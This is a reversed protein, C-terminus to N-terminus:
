ALSQELGNPYLSVSSVYENSVLLSCIFAFCLTLVTTSYLFVFGPLLLSLAAVLKSWATLSFYKSSVANLCLGSLLLLAFGVFVQPWLTAYMPFQICLGQPLCAWHEPPFALGSLSSCLSPPPLSLSLTLSSPLSFCAMCNAKCVLSLIQPIKERHKTCSTM